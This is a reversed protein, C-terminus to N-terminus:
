QEEGKGSKGLWISLYAERYNNRPEYVGSKGILKTVNERTIIHVPATYRSPPSSNFSRNLEDVVQWGQMYLPEPVTALQFQGTKIRDYAAMSGDGASINVPISMGKSQVQEYVPTAFDIYLDNIVLLHTVQEDSILTQVVKHTHNAVQDLPIDFYDILLCRSCKEVTKKMVNAKLTAISYRRDTFIAAKMDGAGETIALLASIEAVEMPDTTINAFLGLEENGETSDSSHWGVVSIGLKKAVKLAERHHKIDIGGLIIGDPKM